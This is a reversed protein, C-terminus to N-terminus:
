AADAGAGALRDLAALLDAKPTARLAAEWEHEEPFRFLEEVQM